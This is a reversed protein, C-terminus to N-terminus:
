EWQFLKRIRTKGDPRTSAEQMAHPRHENLWRTMEDTNRFILEKDTEMVYMHIVGGEVSASFEIAGEDVFCWAPSAGPTTRPELRWGPRGELLNVL